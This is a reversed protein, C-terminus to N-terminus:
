VEGLSQFWLSSFNLLFGGTSYLGKLDGTIIVNLLRPILSSFLCFILAPNQAGVHFVYSQVQMTEFLISNPSALM